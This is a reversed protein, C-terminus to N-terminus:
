RADSAARLFGLLTPGLLDLVYGGELVCVLPPGLGGLLNGAEAFAAPTLRLDANPDEALGDVGLSVVVVDPAFPGVEAVVARLAVLWGDDDTGPPLPENRTAGLGAGRGRESAFGCWYPYECSPDVHLSGYFVDGREYFIEQTGQGHHADVDVVAVRRGGSSLWQAAIAANNLFCSGGYLAPGAHHGPPRVAAFTLPAGDAVLRAATVAAHAAAVAAEWTGELVVTITDGCREGVQALLDHTPPLEGGAALLPHPFAWPVIAPRDLPLGAARWRAVVTSLFQVLTADHVALIPTLDDRVEGPQHLRVDPDAVLADHVVEGRQVVEQAPEIWGLHARTAPRHRRHEATWVAEITL